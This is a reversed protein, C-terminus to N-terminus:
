VASYRGKDFLRFTLNIRPMKVTKDVMLSHEYNELCNDGMVLLSGHALRLTTTAAKDSKLRFVFDREQGLSISAISSASSYEERDSHFGITRRGDRYLNCLCVNYVKGTHRSIKDRIAKLNAPWPHLEADVGWINPVVAVADSDGFVVTERNLRFKTAKVPDPARTHRRKWVWLLFEELKADADERTLFDSIYLAEAEPLISKEEVAM